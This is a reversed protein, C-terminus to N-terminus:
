RSEDRATAEPTLSRPRLGLPAALGATLPYTSLYKGRRRFVCSFHAERAPPLTWEHTQNLGRISTNEMKVRSPCPPLRTAAVQAYLHSGKRAAGSASVAGVPLAM